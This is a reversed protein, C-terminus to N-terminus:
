YDTSAIFGPSKATSMHQELTELVQLEDYEELDTDPDIIHRNPWEEPPLVEIEDDDGFDYFNVGITSIMIRLAEITTRAAVWYREGGFTIEYIKLEKM